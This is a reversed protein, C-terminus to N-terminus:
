RYGRSCRRGMASSRTGISGTWPARCSTSRQRTSRGPSPNWGCRTVICTKTRSSQVIIAADTWHSTSPAGPGRTRGTIYAALVAIFLSYVIWQGFMKGMNIGGSPWITMIGVAGQKIKEEFEPSKMEDVSNSYPFRYDGPQVNLGRLTEMVKAEGPVAIM